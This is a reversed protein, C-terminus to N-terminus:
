VMPDRPERQGRRVGLLEQRGRRVWAELVLQVQGDLPALRVQGRLVLLALRESRDLQDLQDQLDLPVRRDQRAM